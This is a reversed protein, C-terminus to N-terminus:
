TIYIVIPSPSTMQSSLSQAQNRKCLSLNRLYSLEFEVRLTITEEL